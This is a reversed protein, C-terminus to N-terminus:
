SEWNSMPEFYKTVDIFSSLFGTGFATLHLYLFGLAGAGGKLLFFEDWEGSGKEKGLLLGSRYLIGRQLVCIIDFSKLNIKEKNGYEVLTDFTAGEYAFIIKLPRHHKASFISPPPIISLSDVKELTKVAEDFKTTTLNSKVEIVALVGEALYTDDSGVDM